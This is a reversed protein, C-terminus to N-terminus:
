PRKLTYSSKLLGKKGGILLFFKLIGLYYGSLPLHGRGM